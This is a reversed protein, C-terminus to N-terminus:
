MTWVPRTTPLMHWLMRIRFPVFAALPLPLNLDACRSPTFLKLLIGAAHITHMVSMNSSVSRAVRCFLRVLLCLFCSLLSLEFSCNTCHHHRNSFFALPCFLSSFFIFLTRALLASRFVVCSPFLQASAFLLSSFVSCDSKLLLTYWSGDIVTNDYRSILFDNETGDPLAACMNQYPTDDKMLIGFHEPDYVIGPYFAVVSGRPAFGHLFTGLGSNPINSPALSLSFPLPPSPCTPDIPESLKFPPSEKWPNSFAAATAAATVESPSSLARMLDPDDLWWHPNQADKRVLLSNSSASRVKLEMENSLGPYHKTQQEHVTQLLTRVQERVHRQVNNKM